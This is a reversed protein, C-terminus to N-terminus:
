CKPATSVFKVRDGVIVPSATGPRLQAEQWIQEPKGDNLKLATCGNSPVTSWDVVSAAPRFPPPVAMSTGSKEGTAPDVALLGKSSQLGVLYRKGGDEFIVPSTWNAAKPRSIKWVNEGTATDIGAVFSESDNEIQAIFCQDVLVPSSALRPQQQRESLGAHTRAAVTLKMWTSVSFITRHSCRMSTGAMASPRPHQSQQKIMACATRGSAHFAAGLDKKGDTSHFCIVHLRKQEPGSSCTVFVKDGVIVPSSLGQRPAGNGM